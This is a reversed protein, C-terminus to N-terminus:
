KQFSINKKKRYYGVLTDYINPDVEYKGHSIHTFINAFKKGKLFTIYFSQRTIKLDNLIENLKRQM